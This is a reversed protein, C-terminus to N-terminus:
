MDSSVFLASLVAGQPMTSAIPTEASDPNDYTRASMNEMWTHVLGKLSLKCTRAQWLTHQYKHHDVLETAVTRALMWSVTLLPASGEM